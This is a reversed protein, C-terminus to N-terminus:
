TQNNAYFNEWSDIGSRKFFEKSQKDNEVIRYLEALTFYTTSILLPKKIDEMFSSYTYDKLINNIELIENDTLTVRFYSEIFDIIKALDKSNIM